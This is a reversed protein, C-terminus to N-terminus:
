AEEVYPVAADSFRRPATSATQISLQASVSSPPTPFLDMSPSIYLSQTSDKRRALTPERRMVLSFSHRALPSHAAASPHAPVGTPLKVTGPIIPWRRHQQLRSSSIFASAAAPALSPPSSREGPTKPDYPGPPQGPKAEILRLSGRGALSCDAAGGGEKFAGGGSQGFQGEPDSNHCQEELLSESSISGKDLNEQDSGPQELEPLRCALDEKEEKISKIRDLLNKEAETDSDLPENNEPVVTPDSTTKEHVVVGKYPASFRLPLHWHLTNQRKLKLQNVAQAEAFELQEIEEMKENYRRIQENILMEVCTTTKAVDKMSMLPDASDPCRLICPAFVIALSNPSMRNHSEEKSVRVLHFILRELTNFCPTPLEDLLKYTAHLQEQKEPLEVARIFDNYLNFTMLPDPLERLWQKVLGTVTHIPYDELCVSHPDTEMLQRLEKMRNASGSKRYIGETYLGNMEVHELMMEIVMPVPNKDSTLHCVRVGFHLGGSDEDNKKASFTSCDMVIKCLCKKHAVMKCFSCMYAKEMGWIYSSCQDCSQMINVQYNSFVHDLPSEMSKDKKRRKKRAKVPKVPEAEEKKIEGRIFGDLISQFLNIVLQVEGKQREGALSIVKNQYGRMLNKYGIHPKPLSYMAKITERFQITATIFINETASLQKGRSRFDNVQNGLFEDLHRLENANTIERDLSANWQESVRTARSIKITPNRSPLRDGAATGTHPQSSHLAHSTHSSPPGPYTHSSPPGPYTHSSHSAHSSLTAEGRESLVQSITMEPDDPTQAEKHPRKKLIKRLFGSSKEPTSPPIQVTDLHGSTDQTRRKMSDKSWDETPSPLERNSTAGASELGSSVGELCSTNGHSQSHKKGRDKNHAEPSSSNEPQQGGSKRGKWKEAKEKMADQDVYRILNGPYLAEHGNRDALQEPPNVPLTTPRVPAQTAPDTRPDKKSKDEKWAVFTYHDLEKSDAREKLKCETRGVAEKGVVKTTAASAVRESERQSHELGRQRRQERKEQSRTSPVKHLQSVPAPDTSPVAEAAAPEPSPPTGVETSGAVEAAEVHSDQPNNVVQSEGEAQLGAETRTCSGTDPKHAVFGSGQQVKEPLSSAAAEVDEVADRPQEKVSVSSEHQDEDPRGTALPSEAVEVVSDAKQEAEKKRRNIEEEAEKRSYVEEEAEMELRTAEAKQSLRAEEKRRRTEEEEKRRRTEEEEKRRRAEEEEKRRRAEEEEKRRRAEEEEKRRRAEERRRTEEEEERRRTEEEEERRRTEEEEERRRTEEEEERRRTEEEEKRRRTEEEEKRRRTEEEEKRRRTEEEEKRRRTEEEEKRRRTEEEEKRREDRISHCRKRASLGRVLAQIKKISTRRRLFASRQRSGRWAAQLVTAARCREKNHRRWAHQIVIAGQKMELFHRRDLGARVWRQLLLIKRMVDKHLVDHLKQRELEKLYVKTKGIQYTTHDLKMRQFLASIAEPKSATVDKPLLVRFQEIFEQFTYKAGYGSRRIRVTELMGTYRLQQVVLNENLCMEKKESNSRICRIFFPEARGLTELLKTLSTQFQASISPTKKKKNLHLLSKGTRDHLTRAVIYKLSRSDLLSKPISRKHKPNKNKRYMKEVPTNLKQLEGLPTRSTPRQVGATKVAWRRGAENFAAMGRITARLIGWRFMAVPDMGILQRVYARDSSRLLAVIDPRMHDTNKERFDKIQYKVKGAFHQIVFAPEMVPTSVFYKNDQHQQKFKALLTKDTAHPFNSEEDLLYLLGTPKKSILHICGVNDTYDINHWTIGEAQYEEQELKFIHQNFYYQLQENAYNICFQEFSNTEFDEFGFIDLVGISLCPVSEEMDKKNLLAHNIRLVIWDFLASYLSKAMSDRATIAESHSYPLILKDNVTVTKRKTLAEVLLEEKVKLLGSLTVLVEPPGVDLGEDRGTSKKRYTVNGLYLIASLVSFIQKKTASLFGVMEMAQQLREFDHRLDEEDEIMFNQQKLYVYDEPQLLKFEKREEATAGVLLYYFVHYNRENKERSVLRSKELLYKEVIAGRVVGSELYNVQIFKGFRSSNNNHATKANGFAELVPGAGLITREVGSAYGKQSLATLCHILFNTSQTKGSGSEGSIVICQNVRKRLMAYYAVDAIAFIHPELKGLQHNEYMKVYKPNYIPLFKFPNIAILISGAYTYIKNKHFRNRLNDLISSENLAPLNCLDDFDDQRRPLFGRAALKQVEQEQSVAPLHVYHITGDHNREQLLFYFGERQPHQEQAKRPWLLIRQVPLDGSELVWEEGGCEKVEAMVYLRQPDLGLASTADQIVSAATAEKHVKLTCCPPCDASLRPYVLLEYARGDQSASRGEGDQVSM